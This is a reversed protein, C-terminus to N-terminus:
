LGTPPMLRYGFGEIIARAQPGRLFVLFAKAADPNQTATLLAADQKIPAYWDLPPLWVSGAIPQDNIQIQSLAVFGLAVNGSAVFQYAQGISQGQVRKSRWAQTLGLRTLVAQAAVGYPAVAPNAMALRSFDGAKLRAIAQAEDEFLGPKPSWLALQGIAYTFHETPNALGEDVLKQVTLVDASLLVDFPAAQRIQAYFKGSAGVSISVKIGTAEEFAESLPGMPGAFNAAVAVRVPPETTAWAPAITAMTALTTLTALATKLRLFQSPKHESPM